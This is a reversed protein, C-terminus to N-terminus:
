KIHFWVKQQLPQNQLVVNRVLLFYISAIVIVRM